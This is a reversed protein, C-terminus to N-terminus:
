LSTYGGDVVLNHGTIMSAKDSSLFMIANSVDETEAYKHLPIKNLMNRRERASMLFSENDENLIYTPSVANVRVGYVSWEATLARVLGLIGTKSSCYATRMVNGVVGHQSSIFVVNGKQSILSKYGIEKTLFFSGKLNVDVVCDWIEEDMENAKKMINIGANNILVDVVIGEDAIQNVVKIIEEINRFDAIYTKVRTRGEYEKEIKKLDKEHEPSDILLLTAAGSQCYDKVLQEGLHGAAGSVLINKGEFNIEM